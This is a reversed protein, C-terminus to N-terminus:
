SKFWWSNTIERKNWWRTVRFCFTDISIVNLTLDDCYVQPRRSIAQLLHTPWVIFTGLAEEVFRVKSTTMPVEADVQRIDKFVVRAFNERLRV